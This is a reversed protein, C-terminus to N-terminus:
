SGSPVTINAPYSYPNASYWTVTRETAHHGAPVPEGVLPRGLFSHHRHAPDSGVPKGHSSRHGPQDSRQGDRHCEQTPVGALALYNTVATQVQTASNLGYFRNAWRRLGRQLSDSRGRDHPWVEWLGLFPNPDLTSLVVAFEVTALGRRNRQFRRQVSSAM